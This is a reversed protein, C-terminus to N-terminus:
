EEREEGRGDWEQKGQTGQCVGSRTEVLPVRAEPLSVYSPISGWGVGDWLGLRLDRGLM